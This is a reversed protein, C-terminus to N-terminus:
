FCFACHATLDFRILCVRVEMIMEAFLKPSLIAAGPINALRPLYRKRVDGYKIRVPYGLGM